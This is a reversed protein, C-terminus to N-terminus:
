KLIAVVAAAATSVPAQLYGFQQLAVMPRVHGGAPAVSTSLSLCQDKTYFSIKSEQSSRHVYQLLDRVNFIRSPSIPVTAAPVRVRSSM